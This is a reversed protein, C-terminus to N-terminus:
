SPQREMKLSEMFTSTHSVLELNQSCFVGLDQASVIKDWEVNCKRQFM